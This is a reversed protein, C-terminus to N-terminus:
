ASGPPLDPDRHTTQADSVVASPSPDTGTGLNQIVEGVNSPATNTGSGVPTAKRMVFERLEGPLHITEAGLMEFYARAHPEVHGALALLFNKMEEFAQEVTLLAATGRTELTVPGGCKPCPPQSHPVRDLTVAHGCKTAVCKLETVFEQLTTRVGSM